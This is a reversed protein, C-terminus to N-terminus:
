HRAMREGYHPSALVREILDPWARPSEDAVFAEVEELSPPLGLVVLYLRRILTRRDARASFQLGKKRLADGLYADVGDRRHEGTM